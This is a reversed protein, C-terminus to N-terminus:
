ISMIKGLGRTVKNYYSEVNEIAMIDTSYNDGSSKLGDNSDSQSEEFYISSRRLTRTSHRKKNSHFPLLFVATNSSRRVCSCGIKMTINRLDM